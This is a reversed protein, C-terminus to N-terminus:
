IRNRLIKYQMPVSIIYKSSVALFLSSFGKHCTVLENTQYDFIFLLTWNIICLYCSNLISFVGHFQSPPLQKLLFLCHYNFLEYQHPSDVVLIKTYEENKNIKENETFAIGNEIDVLILRIEKRFIYKKSYHTEYDLIIIVQKFSNCLYILILNNNLKYGMSANLNEEKERYIFWSFSNTDVTYIYITDNNYFLVKNDNIRISQNLDYEKPYYQITIMMHLYDLFIMISKLSCYIMLYNDSLGIVRPYKLELHKQYIARMKELDFLIFTKDYFCFFLHDNLFGIQGNSIDIPLNIPRFLNIRGEKDMPANKFSNSNAYPFCEKAQLCVKKWFICKEYTNFGDYM